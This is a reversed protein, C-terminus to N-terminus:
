LLRFNVEVQAFVNVAIGGKMGPKFKWKSVAEMAKEDLGMGVSKVVRIDRARGETDVVISVLVTGSYKAKRAEESYEPDVRFLVTPSSVGGGVKFVGGGM